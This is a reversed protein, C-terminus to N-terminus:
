LRARQIRELESSGLAVLLAFAMPVVASGADGSVFAGIFILVGAASRGAQLRDRRIFRKNRSDVFSVPEVPERGVAILALLGVLIAFLPRITPIADPLAGVWTVVVSSGVGAAMAALLAQRNHETALRDDVYIAIALGFGMVWGLPSVSIITALVAMAALDTPLPRRGTTEVILRAALLLGAFPLLATPQGLLVWTAGAAAAVMASMQRDPDLERTVAWCLFTTGGAQIALWLDRDALLTLLAGLVGAAVSLLVAARNWPSSPDLPRVLHSRFKVGWM